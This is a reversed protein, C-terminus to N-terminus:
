ARAAARVYRNGDQSLRQRTEEPTRVHLAVLYRIGWFPSTALKQLAVPPLPTDILLPSYGQRTHPIHMSSVTAVTSARCIKALDWDTALVSLIAEREQESEGWTAAWYLQKEIFWDGGWPTDAEQEEFFSELGDWWQGQRLSAGSIARMGLSFTAIWRICVTIDHILLQLTEQPAQPNRAVALRVQKDQDHALDLLVEVPTQQNTAVSRRVAEDHDHALAELVEVPTCVNAAVASRVDAVHDMALRRLVEVPTQENRGVVGRVQAIPDQALTRLVEQSTKQHRAVGIRTEEDEDQALFSLVEVSANENTAATARVQADQDQTLMNWIELPIQPNYLLAKRVEMNHDQTLTRLVEAPMHPNRAIDQRVQGRGVDDSFLSHLGTMMTAVLGQVLVIPDGDVTTSEDIDSNRVLECLVELPTNPNAVVGRRVDLAQDRALICLAEVPTNPNNATDQRVSVAEDYILTNLIEAPTHPNRAVGMRTEPAQDQVLSSFVEVPTQHNTALAGRLSVNKEDLALSSLVDTPTHPNGAVAARTEEATDQALVSLVEVPTSLNVAVATRVWVEADQALTRLAEVPTRHDQAVALCVEMTDSSALQRLHDRIIREWTSAVPDVHMGTPLVYSHARQASAITLMSVLILLCSEEGKQYVGYPHDTEGAYQVHLRVAEKQGLIPHSQLWNWWLFPIQPERLLMGWLADDCSIQESRAMVQLPGATNHLFEHPFEVALEELTSWPANPNSAVKQRVSVEEDHALLMLLDIHTAPDNAVLARVDPRPDVSLEALRQQDTTPNSAEEPLLPQSM